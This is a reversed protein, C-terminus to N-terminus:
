RQSAPLATDGARVTYNPYDRRFLRWQEDAEAGKGDARLKRIAELWREPTQYATSADASDASTATPIRPAGPARPGFAPRTRDNSVDPEASSATVAVAEVTTVARPANSSPARRRLQGTVIIEEKEAEARKRAEASAEARATSDAFPNAVPTATNTAYRQEDLKPAAQAPPESGAIAAPPPVSASLEREADLRRPPAPSPQPAFVHAAPAISEVPREVLDQAVREEISAAPAVPAEAKQANTAVTAYQDQQEYQPAPVRVEDQVGVELVIAVILVASAALALPSGWRLWAPARQKSKAPTTVAARAQAMVAADLTPPVDDADLM